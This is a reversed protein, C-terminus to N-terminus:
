SARRLLLPLWFPCFGAFVWDHPPVGRSSIRVRFCLFLKIKLLVRYVILILKSALRKLKRRRTILRTCIKGTLAQLRELEKTLVFGEKQNKRSIADGEGEFRIIIVEWLWKETLLFVASRESRRKEKVFAQPDFLRRFFPRPSARFTNNLTLRGELWAQSICM